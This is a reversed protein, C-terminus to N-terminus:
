TRDRSALKIAEIYPGCARCRTVHDVADDLVRGEIWHLYAICISPSRNVGVNCHVYVVHGDKLLGDVAEVCEPLHKQLAHPSFDQVPVRRVEVGANRYHTELQTWNIEWYDLDGETQVNVVASIGAERRLQDIDEPSKPCSGVFLNSLIQSQDM